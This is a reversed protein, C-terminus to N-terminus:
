QIKTRLLESSGTHGFRALWGLWSEGERAAVPWQRWHEGGRRAKESDMRAAAAEEDGGEGRGSRKRQRGM